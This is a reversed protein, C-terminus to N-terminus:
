KNVGFWYGLEVRADKVTLGNTGSCETPIGEEREVQLFGIGM